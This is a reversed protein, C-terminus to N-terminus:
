RQLTSQSKHNKYEPHKELPKPPEHPCPESIPGSIPLNPAPVLLGHCEQLRSHSAGEAGIRRFLLTRIECFERRDPNLACVAQGFYFSHIYLAPPLLFVIALRKRHGVGSTPCFEHFLQLPERWGLFLLLSLFSSPPPALCGRKEQFSSRLFQAGAGVRQTTEATM